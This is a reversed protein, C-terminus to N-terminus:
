SRNRTTAPPHMSVSGAPSTSSDGDSYADAINIVKGTIASYSAVNNLNPKGVAAVLPVPKFKIEGGSTGGLAINLTDNRVIQFTLEKEQNNLYLTGADSNTLRKAELLIREMLTGYDREVSLAIGIDILQRYANAGGDLKTENMDM